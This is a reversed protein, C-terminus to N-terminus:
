FCLFAWAVCGMNKLTKCYFMLDFKWLETLVSVNGLCYDFDTQKSSSVTLLGEAGRLLYTRKQGFYCSLLFFQGKTNTEQAMIIMCLAWGWLPLSLKLAKASTRGALICSYQHTQNQHYFLVQQVTFIYKYISKQNLSFMRTDILNVCTMVLVYCAAVTVIMAYLFCEDKWKMWLYLVHLFRQWEPLSCFVLCFDRWWLEISFENM